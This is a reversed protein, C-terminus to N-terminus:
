WTLYTYLFVRSEVSTRFVSHFAGHNHPQKTQSCNGALIIVVECHPELKNWHTKTTYQFIGCSEERGHVVSRVINVLGVQHKSVEPSRALPSTSGQMLGRGDWGCLFDNLLWDIM